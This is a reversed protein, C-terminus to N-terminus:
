VEVQRPRGCVSEMQKFLSKFGFVTVGLEANCDKQMDSLDAYETPVETIRVTM